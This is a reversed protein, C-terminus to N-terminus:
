KSLCTESTINKNIMKWIIKETIKLNKDIDFMQRVRKSGNVGMRIRIKPNNILYKIADALARPEASPVLIGTNGDDIVEM